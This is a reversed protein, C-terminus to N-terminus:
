PAVNVTGTMGAHESCEYTYTGEDSFLVPGWVAGVGLVASNPIVGGGTSTVTHGTGVWVWKVAGGPKINIVQPDFFNNKVEVTSTTRVVAANFTMPSGTVDPVTATLVVNGLTDARATLYGNAFGNVDSPSSDTLLIAPGTVAWHVKVGEKGNGYQDVVQLTFSSNFIDGQTTSQNDGSVKIIESAAGAIGTAKFNIPSGIAGALTALAHVEGAETPLTWTTAAVGAGNTIVSPTGFSGPGSFTVVQDPVGVGDSTVKVRIALPLMQGSTDVQNDGSPTWKIITVDEPPGGGSGGEGGCAAALLLMPFLRHFQSRM